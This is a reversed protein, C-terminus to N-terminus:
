NLNLKKLNIKWRHGGGKYNLDSCRLCNAPCANWRTKMAPASEVPLPSTRTHVPHNPPAATTETKNALPRFEHFLVIISSKRSKRHKQGCTMRLTYRTRTGGQKREQRGERPGRRRERTTRGSNNERREMECSVLGCRRRITEGREIKM